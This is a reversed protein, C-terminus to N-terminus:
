NVKIYKDQFDKTNNGIGINEYNITVIQKEKEEKIVLDAQNKNRPYTIWLLEVKNKIEFSLDIEKKTIDKYKISVIKKKQKIEREEIINPSKIEKHKIKEQNMQNMENM